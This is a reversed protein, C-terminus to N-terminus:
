LAQFAQDEALAAGFAAAASAPLTECPCQLQELGDSAGLDVSSIVVLVRPVRFLPVALPFAAAGFFFAAALFFFPRKEIVGSRGTRGVGGLGLISYNNPRSARGVV